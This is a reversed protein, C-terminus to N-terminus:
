KFVTCACDLSYLGGGGSRFQVAPSSLSLRVSPRVSLLTGYLPLTAHLPTSVPPNLRNLSGPGRVGPPGRTRPWFIKRLFLIRWKQFVSFVSLYTAIFHGLAGGGSEASRAELKLGQPGASPISPGWTVTSGPGRLAKSRWQHCPPCVQPTTARSASSCTATRDYGACCNPSSTKSNPM